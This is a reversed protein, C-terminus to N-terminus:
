RQVVEETGAWRDDTADIADFVEALAGTEAVLDTALDAADPYDGALADEVEQLHRRAVVLRQRASRLETDSRASVTGSREPDM